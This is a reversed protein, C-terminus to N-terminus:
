QCGFPNNRFREHKMDVKWVIQCKNNIQIYVPIENLLIIKLLIAIEFKM